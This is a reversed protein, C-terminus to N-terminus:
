WDYEVKEDQRNLEEKENLDQKLKKEDQKVADLVQEAQERKAKEEGNNEQKEQKDKKDKDPKQQPPPPKQQLLKKIFEINYKADVDTSDIKLTEEYSKIADELKNQRYLTNGINYNSKKLVDKNKSQLAKKFASEAEDYRELRYLTNGMNYNIDARDPNDTQLKQYTDLASSYEKKNYLKKAKEKQWFSPPSWGSLLLLLTILVFRRM